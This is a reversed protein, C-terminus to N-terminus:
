DRAEEKSFCWIQHFPLFNWYQVQITDRTVSFRQVLNQWNSYSLYAYDLVFVNPKAEIAIKLYPFWSPMKHGRKDFSIGRPFSWEWDWSRGRGVFHLKQKLKEYYTHLSSTDDAAEFSVIFSSVNFKYHRTVSEVSVPFLLLSALLVLARLWSAMRQM